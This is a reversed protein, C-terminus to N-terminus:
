ATPPPEAVELEGRDDDEADEEEQEEVSGSYLQAKGSELIVLVHFKQDQDGGERNKQDDHSADVTSDFNSAAPTAM